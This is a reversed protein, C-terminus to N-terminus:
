LYQAEMAVELFVDLVGRLLVVADPGHDDVVVQLVVGHADYLGCHWVGAYRLAFPDFPLTQWLGLPPEVVQPLVEVDGHVQLHIPDLVANHLTVSERLYQLGSTHVGDNRPLLKNLDVKRM